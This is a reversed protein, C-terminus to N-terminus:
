HLMRVFVKKNKLTVDSVVTTKDIYCHLMRFDFFINKTTLTVDSFVQKSARLPHKEPPFGFVYVFLGSIGSTLVNGVSSCGCTPLALDM